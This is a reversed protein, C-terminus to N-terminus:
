RFYVTNIILTLSSFLIINLNFDRKQRIHINCIFPEVKIELFLLSLSFFVKSIQELVNGVMQKTVSNANM